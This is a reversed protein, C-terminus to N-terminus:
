NKGYHKANIENMAEASMPGKDKAGSSDSDRTQKTGALESTRSQKLLESAAIFLTEIKEASDLVPAKGGTLRDIVMKGDKTLYAAKLAKSKADKATAKMGPALIEIRSATDGTDGTMTSEEFDDDESEKEEGSSSDESEESDEDADGAQAKGELLKAVATEIASLRDELSAAAAAPEDKADVKAPENNTPQSSADKGANMMGDIKAALDGVMKKLEDYAAADKSPEKKEDKKEEGFADKAKDDKKEEAGDADKVLALAEDQAKGFISKIKEGLKMKSGKGKHDNIAYSSGARGEEVLALHNGVIKTQRGQGEGTQIYEAEYGCSVERLGNKVLNIAVSDTILLDAILDNEHEGTGRRVNQIVGKALRSWNEPSVFDTPHTITIPKGEFSAMTEPRFVEKEKRSILVLGDDGTELPTEGEGYKMEGTRAIPVGVCVLFGEPTEHINESIKSTTYYKM